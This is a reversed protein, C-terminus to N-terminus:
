KSYILYYFSIGDQYRIKGTIDNSNDLLEDIRSFLGTVSGKVEDASLGINVGGWPNEGTRQNYVGDALDNDYRYKAKWPSSINGQFYPGDWNENGTVDSFLDTEDILLGPELSDSAAYETELPFMATDAYLALWGSRLVRLDEHLKTIKSKALTKVANPTIVAALLAVVTIVVLLEILTFSKKIKFEAKRM